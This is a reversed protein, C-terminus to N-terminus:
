IECFIFLLLIYGVKLDNDLFWWLGTHIVGKNSDDDNCEDRASLPPVIWSTFTRPLRPM